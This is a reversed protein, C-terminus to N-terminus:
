RNSIPAKWPAVWFARSVDFVVSKSGISQAFHNTADARSTGTRRPFVWKINPTIRWNPSSSFENRKSLVLCEPRTLRRAFSMSATM